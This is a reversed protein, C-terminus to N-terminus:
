TVAVKSAGTPFCSLSPYKAFRHRNPGAQGFEKGGVNRRRAKRGLSSPLNSRRFFCVSLLDERTQFFVPRLLPDEEDEKFLPECPRIRSIAIAYSVGIVDGHSLLTEINCRFHFFYFLTMTEEYLVIRGGLM